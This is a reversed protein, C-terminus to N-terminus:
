LIGQALADVKEVTPIEKERNNLNKLANKAKPTIDKLIAEFTKGPNQLEEQEILKVVLDKHESLDPNDRYFGMSLDKLASAQNIINGIVFPLAQLAEETAKKVLTQFLNEVAVADKLLGNDIQEQTIFM